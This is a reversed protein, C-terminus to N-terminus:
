FAEGISIQLTCAGDSVPTSPHSGFFGFCSEDVAYSNTPPNIAGTTPDTTYLAPLTGFPLRRALDLRVPGIPTLYRLGVGVAWLVGPLDSVGFLGTTVQGVDVFGAVRLNDLVSYRAEFSGTFMGNGGIPVTETPAPTGPPPPAIGPVPAELLPSLRRESFGRMSNAGGGYFRIVVASEGSISWLEGVQLRAAFTLSNDDLFSVYARLDPLLRFYGFDGQLPGGGEQLSLSTYFGNRPELVKDRHDWTVVQELYSLVVTCAGSTTQCGLTLPATAASNVPSGNLYDVELHYSPFISVRTRPQWVVGASTRGGLNDYTQQITRALDIGTQLKLSPHGALRPQEFTAGLDAVPGNRPAVSLENSAVAYINPLFAWGAEAHITLKRTGGLFNRHTWDGILRAEEHIQDIVVGVGLRLTRFPAERVTVVVPLVATAEDAVGASVNVSGFVGMGFIRREAEELADDSYLAGEHIALRAQEWVFVAPVHSAPATKVDIAGFRYRIGPHVVLTVAALHTKVDVLAEGEVTAKAYGRDHLRPVIGSKASEWESEEFPAGVKLPMKVLAAERDAEPLAELGRVEFTGVKTVPGEDVKVELDVGKPQPIAAEQAIRAQYYGRTEYLRVIRRLDAEWSVPDFYQKTAFPWWGTKATLIKKRIQRTSIEQNGEIRLERVVPAQKKQQSACGVMSGAFALSALLGRRARASRLGAERRDAQVRAM